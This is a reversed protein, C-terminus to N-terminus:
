GSTAPSHHGLRVGAMKAHTIEVALRLERNEVFARLQLAGTIADCQLALSGAQLRGQRVSLSQVEASVGRGVAKSHLRVLNHHRGEARGVLEGEIGAAAFRGDSLQVHGSLATREFLLRAQETFGPGHSAPGQRLLGELFPQLRLQGRDSVFAGILSGRREYTVGDVVAASFQYLYSRGNPADVYIGMRSVGMRSDPGVHAVTAKNFDVQGQRLPVAVNADFMLHAERIQAHITGEAGSLPAMCWPATSDATAKTALDVPVLLTAATLEISDATFARLQPVSGDLRLRAVLKHLALDGVEIVYSGWALRLAGAALRDVAIELEGDPTRRTSLGEITFRNKSDPTTTGAQADLLLGLLSASPASAM